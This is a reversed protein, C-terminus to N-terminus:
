YVDFDASNDFNFEVSFHNEKEYAYFRGRNVAINSSIKSVRKM